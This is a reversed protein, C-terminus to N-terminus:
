NFNAKQDSNHVEGLKFDNIEINDLVSNDMSGESLSIDASRRMKSKNDSIKNVM